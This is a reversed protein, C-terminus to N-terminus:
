KGFPLRLQHVIRDADTDFDAGLGLAFDGQILPDRWTGFIQDWLILLSGYNSDTQHVASSHHVLHVAPTAFVWRLIRWLRGDTRVNAHEVLVAAQLLLEVLAAAWVPPGLLFIPPAVFAIVILPELPHHRFGTSIDIAPDSHHVRHVRWLWGLQHSLRHAWYGAFTRVLLVLFLQLLLPLDDAGSWGWPYTKALLAVGVVGLPLLWGMAYGIGGLAFNTWLRRSTEGSSGARAPKWLEALMLVAFLGVVLWSGYANVWTALISASIM